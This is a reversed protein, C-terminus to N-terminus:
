SVVEADPDTGAGPRTLVITQRVRPERRIVGAEALMDLHHRLATKSGGIARHVEHFTPAPAGGTQAEELFSLIRARAADGRARGARRREAVAGSNNM